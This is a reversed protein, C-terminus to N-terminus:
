NYLREIRAGPYALELIQETTQGAEAMGQACWQCMGVGHGFGRGDTFHVTGGAVRPEVHSSRLQRDRPPDPLHPVPHNCAFRFHEAPLTFRGNRRDTVVFRTPRGADTRDAVEIRGLGRLESVPHGNAAGWARLRASLAEADRQVPGWRHHESGAEACWARRSASRLPPLDIGGAFHPFAASASQSTGGCCSSYFTPLVRGDFTVVRGRTRRAAAIIRESGAEGGYVQSATTSTLDYHRDRHLRQEFLAYSRAAIAQAEFARDHWRPWMEREVVGPVYAEMPVYNVADFVGAERGGDRLPVLVVAGPYRSEDLIISGASPSAIRLWPTAWEFEGRPTHLRWRGEAREVRVPGDFRRADPGAQGDGATPGVVLPADSAADSNFSLSDAAAAIRVRVEPERDIADVRPLAVRREPVPTEPAARDPPEHCGWLIAACALALTGALGIPLLRRLSKDPTLTM